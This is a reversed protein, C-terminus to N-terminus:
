LRGAGDRPLLVGLRSNAVELDNSIGAAVLPPVLEGVFGPPITSVEVWYKDM